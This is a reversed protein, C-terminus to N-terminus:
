QMVSIVSPVPPLIAVDQAAANISHPPEIRLTTTGAHPGNALFTLKVLGGNGQIDASAAYSIRLNGGVSDINSQFSPATPGQTLLSGPSVQVLKLTSPDFGLQLEGSRIPKDSALRIDVNFQQGMNVQAPADLIFQGDIQGSPLQPKPVIVNDSSSPVPVMAQPETSVPVQQSLPTNASVSVPKPVSHLTLPPAGISLETGSNFETLAADPRALSHIIRPTILLVIETRGDNDNHNSFLHGIVPLGGLGPIKDITKQEDRSILGALIQTEGDKLDLVTNANRTGLQYALTGSTTTVQNLINSVELGVKISVQRDLTVIPEVELKLGIDLYSVSESAFSTSTLTTTIVPVKEGVHITAKEGDKVRIRPNALTRTKSDQSQLNLVVLPDTVSLKLLGADRNIWDKLTLTGSTGGSGEVSASLQTPYRIGINTLTNTSVELVQVDMMVEPTALDQDAILKEAMRIADPKDRMILLRLKEDVFLDKTKVLTKIMTATQKVDAHALYFSKTILDQYEELKASTGPYILITNDNLVKEELQNTALIFRIVDPISTDKVFITTRLDTKVDKDFLFNVGTNRSILEFVSRLDTDRFEMTIPRDLAAELRPQRPGSEAKSEVSSILAQAEPRGPNATLAEHAITRAEDLHGAALESQGETILQDYARDARLSQLAVNPRSSTPDLQAAEKYAAEAGSWDGQNKALDGKELARDVALDRQKLYYHRYELNDPALRVAEELKPLGHEADGIEILASGERFDQQAACGSLFLLGLIALRKRM